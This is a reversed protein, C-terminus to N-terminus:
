VHLHASMRVMNPNKKATIIEFMSLVVNLFLFFYMKTADTM